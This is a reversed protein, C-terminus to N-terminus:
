APGPWVAGLRGTFVLLALLFVRKTGVRDGMWGSAPIFLALSLLYGTM